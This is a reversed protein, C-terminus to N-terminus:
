AAFGVGTIAHEAGTGNHLEMVQLLICSNSKDIPQFSIYEAM